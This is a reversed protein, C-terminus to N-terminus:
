PVHHVDLLSTFIISILCRRGKGILPLAPHVAYVGCSNPTTITSSISEEKIPNDKRQELIRKQTRFNFHMSDLHEFILFEM